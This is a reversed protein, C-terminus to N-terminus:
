SQGSGQSNVIHLECPEKLISQQRLTKRAKVWTVKNIWFARGKGLLHRNMRCAKVLENQEDTEGVKWTTKHRIYYADYPM